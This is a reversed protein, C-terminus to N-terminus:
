GSRCNSSTFRVVNTLDDAFPGAKLAFHGLLEDRCLLFRSMGEAYDVACIAGYVHDSAEREMTVSVMLACSRVRGGLGINELSKDFEAIIRATQTEDTIQSVVPVSCERPVRRARNPSVSKTGWCLNTATVDEVADVKLFRGCWSGPPRIGLCSGENFTGTLTAYTVKRTSRGSLQRSIRSDFVVFQLDSRCDESVLQAGSEPHGRHVAGRVAIRRGYFRKPDADVECLNVEQPVDAVIGDVATANERADRSQASATPSQAVARACSALLAIACIIPVFTRM